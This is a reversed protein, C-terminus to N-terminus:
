PLQLWSVIWACFVLLISVKFRCGRCTYIYEKEPSDESIDCNAGLVFELTPSSQLGDGGRSYGFIRVEYMVQQKLGSLVYRIAKGADLNTAVYINEGRLWYRVTYGELPEELITTYVGRWQLLVSNYDVFSVRVDQPAEMPAARLTRTRYNESKPGNGATNIPQINIMYWTNERLAIILGHDTQNHIIKFLGMTENQEVDIWYNIRYGLLKGGMSERTDAVPDWEVTIATCNYYVAKVNIPTIKPLDEASMITVTPSMPGRGMPNFAQIRVNYPLYYNQSGITVVYKLATPDNITAQDWQDEEMDQKKWSVIYGVSGPNANYESASM